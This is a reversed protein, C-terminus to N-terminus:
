VHPKGHEPKDARSTALTLGVPVLLNEVTEPEFRNAALAQRKADAERMALSVPELVAPPPAEAVMTRWPREVAAEAAVLPPPAIAVQPNLLEDMTVAHVALEDAPSLAGAAYSPEVRADPTGAFMMNAAFVAVFALVAGSVARLGRGKRPKCLELPDYDEARRPRRSARLSPTLAIVNGHAPEVVKPAPEVAHADRPPAAERAAVPLEAAVAEPEEDTAVAFAHAYARAQATAVTREVADFIPDLLESDAGGDWDSLDFAGEEDQTASKDFTAIVAQGTSTARDLADGFAPCRSAAESWLVVHAYAREDAQFDGISFGADDFIAALAEARSVDERVCVFVVDSM